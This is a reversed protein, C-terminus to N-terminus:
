AIIYGFTGQESHFSQAATLMTKPVSVGILTNTGNFYAVIIGQRDNVDGSNSMSLRSSGVTILNDAVPNPTTELNLPNGSVTQLPVFAYTDSAYEITSLETGLKDIGEVHSGLLSGNMIIGSVVNTTNSTASGGLHKATSKDLLSRYENELQEISNEATILRARLDNISGANGQVGNANTKMQEDIKNMNGNFDTLWSTVDNPAYIGLEYNTTKLSASM